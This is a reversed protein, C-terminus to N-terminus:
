PSYFHWGKYEYKPLNGSVEGNKVKNLLTVSFDQAYKLEKTSLEKKVDYRIMEADVINAGNHNYSWSPRPDLANHISSYIYANLRDELIEHYPKRIGGRYNPRIYYHQALNEFAPASGNSAAIKMWKINLPHKDYKGSNIGVICAYLHQAEVEGDKAASLFLEEALSQNEPVGDGDKYKKGLLLNAKPNGKDALQHLDEVSLATYDKNQEAYFFYIGGFFTAIIVSALVLTKAYKILRNEKTLSLFYSHLYKISIACLLLTVATIILTVSTSSPFLLICVGWIITFTFLISSCIFGFISAYPYEKPFRSATSNSILFIVVLPLVFPASLGEIHAVYSIFILHLVSFSLAGKNM